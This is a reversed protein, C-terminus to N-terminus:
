QFGGCVPKKQRTTRSLVGFLAPGTMSEGEPQFSRADRSM